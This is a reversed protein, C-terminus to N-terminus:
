GVAVAAREVDDELMLRRHQDAESAVSASVAAARTMTGFPNKGTCSVPTMWATEPPARLAHRKRLHHLELLLRDVIM